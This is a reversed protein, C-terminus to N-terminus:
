SSCGLSYSVQFACYLFCLIFSFLPCLSAHVAFWALLILSHASLFSLVSLPVARSGTGKCFRPRSGAALVATRMCSVTHAAPAGGARHFVRLFVRASGGLGALGPVQSRVRTIGWSPVPQKEGWGAM